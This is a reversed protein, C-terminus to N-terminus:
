APQQGPAPSDPETGPRGATRRQPTAPSGGRPARRCRSRDGIGRHPPRRRRGRSGHERTSWRPGGPGSRARADSRRRGRRRARAGPKADGPEVAVIQERERGVPKEPREREAAEAVSEGGIEEAPTTGFDEVGLPRRPPYEAGLEEADYTEAVDQEDTTGPPAQGTPKM